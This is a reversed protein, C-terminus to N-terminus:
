AAARFRGDVGVIRERRARFPKMRAEEWAAVSVVWLQGSKRASPIQKCLRRFVLRTVGEPLRVSTYTAPATPQMRAAIEIAIEAARRIIESENM